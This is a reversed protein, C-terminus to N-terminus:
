NLRFAGVIPKEFARFVRKFIVLFRVIESLDLFNSELNRLQGLGLFKTRRNFAPGDCLTRQFKTVLKCSLLALLFEGITVVVMIDYLAEVRRGRNLHNIELLRFNTLKQHLTQLFDDLLSFLFHMLFLGFQEVRIILLNQLVRHLIASDLNLLRNGVWILIPCILIRKGKPIELSKLVRFRRLLDNRLRIQRNNRRLYWTRFLNVLLISIGLFREVHIWMSM